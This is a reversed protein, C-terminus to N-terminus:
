GELAISANATMVTERLKRFAATRDASAPCNAAIVLALSKAADRVAGYRAPQDGTPAHYRFWNEIDAAVDNM